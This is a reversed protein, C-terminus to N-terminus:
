TSSEVGQDDVVENITQRPPRSALRERPPFLHRSPRVTNAEVSALLPPECGFCSDTLRPQRCVAGTSLVRSGPSRRPPAEGARSDGSKVSSPYPRGSPSRRSAPDPIAEFRGHVCAHPLRTPNKDSRPCPPDTSRADVAAFTRDPARNEADKEQRHDPVAEIEQVDVGGVLLDNLSGDDHDGDCDIRPRSGAVSARPSNCAYTTTAIAETAFAAPGRSWARVTMMIALPPDRGPMRIALRDRLESIQIVRQNSTSPPSSPPTTPGPKGIRANPDDEISPMGQPATATTVEVTRTGTVIFHSVFIHDILEMRGRYIRSFRKTEKILKATNWLRDGDGQDPQNM